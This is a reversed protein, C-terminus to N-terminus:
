VVVAVLLAAIRAVSVFFHSIVVAFDFTGFDGTVVDVTYLAFFM